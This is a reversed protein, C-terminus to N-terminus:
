ADVIRRVQRASIGFRASLQRHNTGDFRRRIDRDREAKVLAALVTETPPLQDIGRASLGKYLLRIFVDARREAPAAAVRPSALTERLVQLFASMGADLETM